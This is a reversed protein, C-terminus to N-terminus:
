PVARDLSHSRQRHWDESRKGTASDAALRQDLGPDGPLLYRTLDRYAQEMALRDEVQAYRLNPRNVKPVIDKTWPEGAESALGRLVTNVLLTSRKYGTFELACARPHFRTYNELMYTIADALEDDDALIGTRPNVYDMNMGVHHRYVIIPTGCFLAEHIGKNSGEFRSLLLAAKSRGVIDAVQEPPIREHMEFRDDIGLRKMEARLDQQSREEPYGILAIRLPRDRLREVARFLVDHRRMRAWSAVMVLDIDRVGSPHPRFQDTDVWDGGGRRVIHFNLNQSEFFRIDEPRTCQIIVDTEACAYLFFYPEIYNTTSPELVIRYDRALSALDFVAPMEEFSVNYKLLIVGREGTSPDYPKLIILNGQRGPDTNARPLRLRVRDEPSYSLFRRRIAVARPLSQYERLLHNEALPVLHGESGCAACVIEALAAAHRRTIQASPIHRCARCYADLARYHQGAALYARGATDLALAYARQALPFRHILSKLPKAVIVVEIIEIRRPRGPDVRSWSL